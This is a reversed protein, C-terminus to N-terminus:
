REAETFHLPRKSATRDRPSRGDGRRRATQCQAEEKYADAPELYGVCILRAWPQPNVM